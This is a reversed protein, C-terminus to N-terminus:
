LLQILDALDSYEGNALTIAPSPSQKPNYWLSSCGANVASMVDATSDGIHLISAAPLDLDSAVQLLMDPHPKSRLGNDGARYYGVFSSGLGVQHIDVNGNTVAVVPYKQSLQKLIDIAPQPVTFNSREAIFSDYAQQCVQEHNALNFPKLGTDLMIKRWQTVSHILAPNAQAVQKKVQLWYSLQHAQPDTVHEAITQIQKTVAQKIIPHNHYLTDDLDFSLAQIPQSFSKNFRIAM